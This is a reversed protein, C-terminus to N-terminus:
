KKGQFYLARVSKSLYLFNKELPYSQLIYKLFLSSYNMAQFWTNSFRCSKKKGLYM